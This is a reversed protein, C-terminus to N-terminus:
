IKISKSDLPVTIKIQTGKDKTSKIEITGESEQTRTVINKLGIGKNKKNVEFGIGDDVINLILNGKKDKKFEIKINKAKAYKNINQLTEQLIRYLNIKTTSPLLDWDIDIGLKSMLTAKSVKTQDEFLSNVIAVFNNILVYKERSLEHSIERLDQEIIKLEDICKLREQVAEEDDRKNLGDLNLRLGFMRGLVGDHLEKAIRTKEMVRGEDLKNQQIIILKYIEENAKQQSEKLIRLRTRTKQFRMFFLFGIFIITGIFYNLFNRNIEELDTNEKKLEDTELEIRAFRDKSNREAIQLSDSIRIYDESYKSSNTKDVLSAQKLALVLNLPIKSKRAIEIAKQSYFIAKLRDNKIFYYESLHINSGVVVTYNDLKERIKLAEFFLSPLGTSINSKFRCYALNDILNAYLDPDDIIIAKDKLALEFNTISEKFKNQKLFLYGLNNYCVAEQHSDNQLNYKRVTELAKNHYFVAKDYEKLENYVLGLQNLTGYLKDYETTVKYISYARNLSLESGLYDGVLYQVIGKNFLINALDLNNKQKVYIKEAKIYYYFSSDLISNYKHYSGLFRYAKALHISDNAERSNKLLLFVTKRLKNLDKIKYYEIAIASLAERNKDSNKGKEILFLLHNINSKKQESSISNLNISESYYSISDSKKDVVKVIDSDKSKKCSLFFILFSLLIYKAKM